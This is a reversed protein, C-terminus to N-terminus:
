ERREWKNAERFESYDVAAAEEARALWGTFMSNVGFNGYTGDRYNRWLVDPETEGFWAEFRVREAEIQDPTM